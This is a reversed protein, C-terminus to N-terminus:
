SWVGCDSSRCSHGLSENIRHRVILFDFLYSGPDYLGGTFDRSRLRPRSEPDDYYNQRYDQRDGRRQPSEVAKSVNKKQKNEGDEKSVQDRRKDFERLTGEFQAPPLSHHRASQRYSENVHKEKGADNNRKGASGL